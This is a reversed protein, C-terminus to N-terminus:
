NFGSNLSSTRGRRRGRGRIYSSSEQTIFIIVKATSYKSNFECKNHTGRQFLLIAIFQLKVEKTGGIGSIHYIRIVGERGVELKFNL